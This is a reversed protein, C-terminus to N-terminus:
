SRMSTFPCDAERLLCMSRWCPAVGGDGCGVQGGGGGGLGVGRGEGFPTCLFVRHDAIGVQSDLRTLDSQRLQEQSTVSALQSSFSKLQQAALQKTADWMDLNVVWGLEAKFKEDGAQVCVSATCQLAASCCLATCLLELTACHLVARHHKAIRAQLKIFHM